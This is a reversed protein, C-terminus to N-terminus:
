SLACHREEPAPTTHSTRAHAHRQAPTHTHPPRVGDRASGGGRAARGAAAQVNRLMHSRRRSHGSDSSVSMRWGVSSRDCNM